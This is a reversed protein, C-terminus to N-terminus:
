ELPEMILACAACKLDDPALTAAPVRECLGWMIIDPDCLRIGEAIVADRLENIENWHYNVTGTGSGSAAAVRDRTMAGIGGQAYLAYAHSLIKQKLSM